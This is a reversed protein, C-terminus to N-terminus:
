RRTARVLAERLEDMNFPNPLLPCGRLREPLSVSGDLSTLLVPVERRSLIDCLGALTEGGIRGDLLAADIPASAGLRYAVGLDDVPGVVVCGLAALLAEAFLGGAPPAEVLLVHCGALRSTM